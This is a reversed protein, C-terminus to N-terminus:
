SKHSQCKAGGSIRVDGSGAIRVSATRSAYGLVGGSGAIAVDLDICKLGAVDADGSGSISIKAKTCRGAASIDGSGAISFTAAQTDLNAVRADGSGSLSVSFAAGSGKDASFDGSGSLAVGVLAPTTVHIVVNGKGWTMGMSTKQEIKLTDGEVRIDLRDLRDQPGTAVVSAAKGTTVVVDNAGSAAIRQFETVPFSREAASATCATALVALGASLILRNM